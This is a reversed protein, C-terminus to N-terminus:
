FGLGPGVHEGNEGALPLCLLFAGARTASCHFARILLAGKRM